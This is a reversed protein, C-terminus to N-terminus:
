MFTISTIMFYYDSANLLAYHEKCTYPHSSHPFLKPFWNFMDKVRQYNRLGWCLNLHFIVAICIQVLHSLHHVLSLAFTICSKQQKAIM